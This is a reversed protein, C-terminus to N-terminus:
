LRPEFGPEFGRSGLRSATLTYSFLRYKISNAAEIHTESMVSSLSALNVRTQLLFECSIGSPM